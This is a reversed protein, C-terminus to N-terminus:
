TPAPRASRRRNPPPRRARGSRGTPRLLPGRLHRPRPQRGWPRRPRPRNRSRPRRGSPTVRFARGFRETACGLIIYLLTPRSGSHPGAQRVDVGSRVLHRVVRAVPELKGDQDSEGEREPEEEGPQEVEGASGQGLLFATASRRDNLNVGRSNRRRLREGVERGGVRRHGLRHARRHDENLRFAGVLRDDRAPQRRAELDRTAAAHRAALFIRDLAAAARAEHDRGVAVDEGIVVDNIAGAAHPDEQEVAAAEVGIDDAAVLVGVDAHELDVRGPQRRRGEPRRVGRPDAFPHQGDAVREAGPEGERHRLADDAGLTAPREVPGVAVIAIASKMWVSAAM